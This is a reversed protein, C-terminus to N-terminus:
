KVDVAYTSVYLDQLLSIDDPLNKTYNSSYFWWIIHNLTHASIVRDWKIQRYCEFHHQSILIFIFLARTYIILISERDLSDMKHSGM